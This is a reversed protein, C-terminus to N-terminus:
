GNRGGNFRACCARIMRRYLGLGLSETEVVAVEARQVVEIQRHVLIADSRQDSRGSAALRRKQAAEVAHVVKIRAIAVLALDHQLGVVRIEERAVDIRDLHAHPDAHHELLRIGERLRHELVDGVAQAHAALALARQIINELEMIKGELFAQQEKAETYAANESLDGMEQAERIKDAVEQRKVTKMEELEAKLQELKEKTVYSVQGETM